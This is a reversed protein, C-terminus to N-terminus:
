HDSTRRGDQNEQKKTKKHEKLHNKRSTNLPKGIRYKKSPSRENNEKYAGQQEDNDNALDPENLSKRYTMTSGITWDRPHSGTDLQKVMGYHNYTNQEETEIDM